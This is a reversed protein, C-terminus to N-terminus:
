VSKKNHDRSGMIYERVKIDRGEIAKRMNGFHKIVILASASLALLILVINRSRVAVCLPFAASSFFPLVFSYNAIMMLLVGVSIVAAFMRADYALMLGVFAALGKGGKFGLYFPFVHGVVAFVGALMAAEPMEPFIARVLKYATFAKAIDFAMVLAGFGKGFNLMVNTAGLNGTGRKRLDKHKIASILAAPNVCGLLYGLIIAIIYNM